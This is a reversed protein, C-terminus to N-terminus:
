EAVHKPKLSDGPPLQQGFRRLHQPDSFKDVPGVQNGQLPTSHVARRTDVGVPPLGGSQRSANHSQWPEPKLKYSSAGHSANGGYPSRTIGGGGGGRGGGRRSQRVPQQAVPVAQRRRTKGKNGKDQVNDPHKLGTAQKRRTRVSDLSQNPNTRGGRSRIAVRGAVTTTLNTKSSPLDSSQKATDVKTSVDGGGVSSSSSSSSSSGNASSNGVPDGISQDNRKTGPGTSAVTVVVAAASAVSTQYGKSAGSPVVVPLSSSSSAGDGQTPPPVAALPQQQQQQQQQQGGSQQQSRSQPPPATKLSRTSPTSRGAVGFLRDARNLSAPRDVRPRQSQREAQGRSGVDSNAIGRLESASSTAVGVGAAEAAAARRRRETATATNQAIRVSNAVGRDHMQKWKSYDETARRESSWSGLMTVIGMTAAAFMLGPGLGVGASRPQNYWEADERAYEHNQQHQRQRQRQQHQRQRQQNARHQGYAQEGWAHQQGRSSGPGPYAGAGGSPVRARARQGLITEYAESVQKFMVEAQAQDAGKATATDPHHKLALKRYAKKLEGETCGRGVGLLAYPDSWAMSGQWRRGHLGPTSRRCARKVAPQSLSHGTRRQWHLMLLLGGHTHLAHHTYGQHRLRCCRMATATVAAAARIQPLLHLGVVRQTTQLTAMIVVRAPDACPAVLDTVAISHQATSECM